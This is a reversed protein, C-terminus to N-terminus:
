RSIDSLFSNQNGRGPSRRPGIAPGPKVATLARSKHVPYMGIYAAPQQKRMKEIAAAGHKKFDAALALLFDKNFSRRTAGLSGGPNGIPPSAARSPDAMAAPGPANPTM